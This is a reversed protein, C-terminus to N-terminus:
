YLGARRDRNGGYGGRMWYPVRHPVHHLHHHPHVKLTLPRASTAEAMAVPRPAPFGPDPAHGFRGLLALAAFVVLGWRAAAGTVKVRGMRRLWWM